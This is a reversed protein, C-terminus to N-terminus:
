LKRKKGGRAFETRWQNNAMAAVVEDITDYVLTMKDWRRGIWRPEPPDRGEALAKNITRANAIYVNSPIGRAKREEIEGRWRGEAGAIALTQLTQAEVKAGCRKLDDFSWMIKSIPLVVKRVGGSVHVELPEGKCFARNGADVFVNLKIYARIYPDV